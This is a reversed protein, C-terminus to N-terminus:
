ESSATFTGVREAAYGFLEEYGYPSLLVPYFPGEAVMETEDAAAFPEGEIVREFNSAYVQYSKADAKEIPRRLRFLELDTQPALRESPLVGTAGLFERAVQFANDAAQQSGQYGCEIEITTPISQFLRGEDYPGVDVVADVSLRPCVERAYPSVDNVLGFIGEYSQTSHLSLTRCHGIEKVLRAALRSEHTTADKRGPFARNLDEDVYRKEVALARENAIVLAVPREVDPEMALLREIAEPGCPEDGHIGGVVAIDPDDGGLYEIRM